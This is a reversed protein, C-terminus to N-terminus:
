RSPPAGTACRAVARKWFFIYNFIMAIGGGALVAQKNADIIALLAQADYFM